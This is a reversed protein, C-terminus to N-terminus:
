LTKSIFRFSIFLFQAFVNKYSFSLKVTYARTHTHTNFHMHIFIWFQFKFLLLVFFLRFCKMGISDDRMM